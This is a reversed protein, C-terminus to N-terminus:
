NVFYTLDTIYVNDFPDNIQFIIWSSALRHLKIFGSYLHSLSIIGLLIIFFFIRDNM